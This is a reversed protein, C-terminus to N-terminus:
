STFGKENRNDGCLTVTSEAKEETCQCIGLCMTLVKYQSVNIDLPSSRVKGM